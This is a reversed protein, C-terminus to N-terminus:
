QNIDLVTKNPLVFECAKSIPTTGNFTKTIPTQSVYDWTYGGNGDSLRTLKSYNLTTSASIKTQISCLAGIWAATKDATNSKPGLNLPIKDSITFKPLKADSEYCRVCLSTSDENYWGNTGSGAEFAQAFTEPLKMKAAVDTPLGGYDVIKGKRITLNYVTQKTSSASGGNTLNITVPKSSGLSVTQSGNTASSGINLQGSLSATMSKSDVKKGHGLKDVSVGSVFSDHIAEPDYGSNGWASKLSANSVDLVYTKWSMTGGEFTAAVGGGALYVPLNSKSNSLAKARIDNAIATSTLTMHSTDVGMDFALYAIVPINRMKDGATM